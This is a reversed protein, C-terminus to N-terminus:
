YPKKLTLMPFDKTNLTILQAQHVISSAAICADALGITHSNYYQSLLKGAMEGVANDLSIPTFLSLFQTMQKEETDNRIGAHLEAISITSIMLNHHIQKEIYNIAKPLGRLYDIIVSTDILLKNSM